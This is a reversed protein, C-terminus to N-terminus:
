QLITRTPTLANSAAAHPEPGDKRNKKLEAAFTAVRQRSVGWREGVERASMGQQLCVDLLLLRLKHRADTIRRFADQTAQRETATPAKAMTEMFDVGSKLQTIGYRLLADSTDMVERGWGHADMLDQMAVILEDRNTTM